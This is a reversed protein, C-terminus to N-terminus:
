KAHLSLFDVINGIVSSIITLTEDSLKTSFYTMRSGDDQNQRELYAKTVPCKESDWEKVHEALQNLIGQYQLDKLVVVEEETNCTGVMMNGCEEVAATMYNCSKRALWDPRGDPGATISSKYATYADMTCAEFLEPSCSKDDKTDEKEEEDVEGNIRRLSARVAPCKESDWGRTTQELQSIIPQIQEDKMKNLEELTICEGVLLNGCHLVSTVYNCAKRALWDPKKGDDGAQFVKQFEDYARTLCKSKEEELQPSCTNADRKVIRGGEGHSVTLLLLLALMTEQLLSDLL